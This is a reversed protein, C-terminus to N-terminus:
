IEGDPHNEVLSEIFDSPTMVIQGNYSCSAFESFRAERRSMQTTEEGKSDDDDTSKAILHTPAIIKVGCTQTQSAFLLGAIGIGTGLGLAGTARPYARSLHQPKAFELVRVWTSQLKLIRWTLRSSAAAAMVKGRGREGEKNVKGALWGFRINVFTLIGTFHIKGVPIQQFSEHGPPLKNELFSSAESSVM